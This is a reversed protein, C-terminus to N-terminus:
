HTSDTSFKATTDFRVSATGVAAPHPQSVSVYTSEVICHLRVANLRKTSARTSSQTNCACVRCPFASPRWRSRALAACAPRGARRRTADDFAWPEALFRYGARPPARHEEAPPRSATLFSSAVSGAWVPIAKTRMWCRSGVWLLMNTSNNDRSVAISTKCALSPIDIRGSRRYTM